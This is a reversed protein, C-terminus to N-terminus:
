DVKEDGGEQYGNPYKEVLERMWKIVSLFETIQFVGNM